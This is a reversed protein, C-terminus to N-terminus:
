RRQDLLFRQVTQVFAEPQEEQPSHGADIFEMHGSALQRVLRPADLPSAQPDARGWAVLTPARVRTLRAVTARTDLSARLVAYASERAAPSNFLFYLEDVRETPVSHGPAYVATQFYRRFMARGIAQKFFLGGVVPLLAISLPFPFRTPFINPALLVLHDVFEPHEAALTLAVSGGLGHGLLHCRGVWLASIVDAVVEAFIEVGYNYRSPPPKESEGFGPLDVAVVHFVRSLPEIVDDFTLHSGLFDHVLVLSTGSGLEVVRTRTGRATVDRVIPTPGPVTPPPYCFRPTALNQPDAALRSLVFFTM